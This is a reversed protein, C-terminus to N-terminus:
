ASLADVVALVADLDAVKAACRGTPSEVLAVAPHSITTVVEPDGDLDPSTNQEVTVRVPGCGLVALVLYPGNHSMAEIRASKALMGAADDVFGKERLATLLADLESTTDAM